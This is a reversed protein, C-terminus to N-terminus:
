TINGPDNKKNYYDLIENRLFDLDDKSPLATISLMPTKYQKEKNLQSNIILLDADYDVDKFENYPIIKDIVIEPISHELRYKLLQGGSPAITCILITKLPKKFREIASALHLALFGM